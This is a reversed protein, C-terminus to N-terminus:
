SVFRSVVARLINDRSLAQYEVSDQSFTTPQLIRLIIHLPQGPWINKRKIIYYVYLAAHSTVSPWKILWIENKASLQGRLIQSLSDQKVNNPKLYFCANLKLFFVMMRNCQFSYVHFFIHMWFAYMKCLLEVYTSAIGIQKM